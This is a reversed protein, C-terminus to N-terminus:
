PGGERRSRVAWRTWVLFLLMGTAVVASQWLVTHSADFLDPRYAGTLYLAGVRVLNVGQIAVSGLALGALRVSWGAPFALVGALLILLTEVGNCGNEINVAFRPGDIVTGRVEVEQGLAALLAGSGRAVLATFPLVLRDNVPNWAVLTFSGALILAFRVLFRARPSLRRGLSLM